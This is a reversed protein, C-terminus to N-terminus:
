GNRGVAPPSMRKGAIASPAAPQGATAPPSVSIIRLTRPYGHRDPWLIESGAALGILAAGIPTMISVKGAAIDAQAPMVLQVSRCAGSGEDFFEVTANLRVVNAPLDAAAHVQARELENMLQRALVPQTIENHLALIAIADYESDIVHVPPLTAEPPMFPATM